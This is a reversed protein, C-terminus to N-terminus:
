EMMKEIFGNVSAVADSLAEKSNKEYQYGRIEFLMESAKESSVDASDPIVAMKLWPVYMITYTKNETLMCVMLAPYEEAYIVYSTNLYLCSLDFSKDYSSYELGLIVTLLARNQESQFWQEATYGM